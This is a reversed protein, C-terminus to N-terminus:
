YFRCPCFRETTSDSIAMPGCETVWGMVEEVWGVLIWFKKVWSMPIDAHFENNLRRYANRPDLHEVFKM